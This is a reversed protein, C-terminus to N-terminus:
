SRRSTARQRAKGGNRSEDARRDDTADDDVDPDVSQAESHRERAFRRPRIRRGHGGAPKGHGAGRDSRARERGGSGRARVGPEGVV